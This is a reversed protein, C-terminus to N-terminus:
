GLSTAAIVDILMTSGGASGVAALYRAGPVAAATEAYDTEDGPRGRDRASGAEM